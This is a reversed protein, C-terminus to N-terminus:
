EFRGPVIVGNVLHAPIYRGHGRPAVAVLAVLGGAAAALGALALWSLRGRTWHEVALPFKARLVLYFAFAAFPLLFLGVTEFIARAMLPDAEGLSQAIHGATAGWIYRDDYPM